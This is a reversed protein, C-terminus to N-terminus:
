RRQGRTLRTLVLTASAERCLLRTRRLPVRDATTQHSNPFFRMEQLFMRGDADL